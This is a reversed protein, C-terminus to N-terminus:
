SGEKVKEYESVPLIGQQVYWEIPMHLDKDKEIDRHYIKVYPLAWVKFGLKRANKCFQLHPAPNEWKAGGEIVKRKVLFMTGVSQLEIPKTESLNPPNYRPYRKGDLSRFIYTDYFKQNINKNLSWTRYPVEEEETYIYPAVIDKDSQLLKKITNKPIISIDADVTLLFEEDKLASIFDNYIDAIYLSAEIPKHMVPEHYISYPFDRDKFWNKVLDLTFDISKGYIIVFRLKDHPYDIEEFNSLFKELYKADNKVPLCVLIKPYEKSM